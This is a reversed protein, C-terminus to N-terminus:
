SVNCFFADLKRWGGQTKSVYFSPLISVLTDMRAAQANSLSALAGCPQWPVASAPSSLRNGHLLSDWRCYEDTEEGSIIVLITIKENYHSCCNLCLEWRWSLSPSKVLNSLSTSLGPDMGCPAAKPDRLLWHVPRSVQLITKLDETLFLRVRCSARQSLPIGWSGKDPSRYTLQTRPKLPHLSAESVPTFCPVSTFLLRILLVKLSSEARSVEVRKNKVLIPAYKKPVTLAPPVWNHHSFVQNM